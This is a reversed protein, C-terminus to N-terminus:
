AATEFYPRLHPPITGLVIQSAPIGAETLEDMDYDTRNEQIWIKGDIIDLQIVIDHVRENKDWGIAIMLYRDRDRDIVLERRFDGHSYRITALRELMKIITARYHELKEM